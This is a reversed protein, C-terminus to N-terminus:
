ERLRRGTLQLFVDELNSAEVRLAKYEIDGAKFGKILSDITEEFANTYVIIEGHGGSIAQEVAPLRQLVECTAEESADDVPTVYVKVGPAHQQILRGPTDLAILEGQDIIAIRDCLVEAEEMYHTTLVITRGDAQISRIVDWLNHRAQPDLGTTPEDMFVVEPDNVLALAISLRQRQGGSLTHVRANAKETLQLRDILTKPDAGRRHFTAFLRVTERVTLKDFLGAEQLQVGMVARARRPAAVVDIGAVSVQGGDPKRLGEIMELTTTKGAGNPGLLGFTEGQKVSFSVGNVATLSGYRKVLDKVEIAAPRDHENTSIATGDAATLQSM